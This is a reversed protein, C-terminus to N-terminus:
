TAICCFGCCFGVCADEALASVPSLYLEGDIFWIDFEVANFNNKVANKLSAITNQKINNQIFGRHAFIKIM